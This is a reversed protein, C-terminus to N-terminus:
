LVASSNIASRRPPLGIQEDTWVFIFIKKFHIRLPVVQSSVFGFLVPLVAFAYPYRKIECRDLSAVAGHETM